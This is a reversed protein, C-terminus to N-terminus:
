SGNGARTAAVVARRLLPGCALAACRWAAERTVALCLGIASRVLGSRRGLGLFRSAGQVSAEALVTAANIRWDLEAQWPSALKARTDLLALSFPRRLVFGPVDMPVGGKLQEIARVYRRTTDAAPRSALVYGLVARAEEVLRRRRDDGLPHMGSQLPRLALRLQLLSAQTDIPPLAFLSQLRDLGVRNRLPGPMLRGALSVLLTPVPLFRARRHLRGKAIASLFSKFSVPDPSALTLIRLSIDDREAAGILGLALDDVHIPQVKPSPMFAPLVPLRAVLGVLTGFLGEPVGGYVQGPRIVWGGAALVDQEIIWKTRGYATPADERATQSSVFLVKAGAAQAASLLSRAAAQEVRGSPGDSGSTNAALHIVARTGRPIAPLSPSDLEYHMWEVGAALPKRSAAVVEHSREMALKMVRRGIYGSAGTVLLKM